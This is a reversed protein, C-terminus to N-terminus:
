ANDVEKRKKLWEIKDLYTEKDPNEKGEPCKDDKCYDPRYESWMSTRGDCKICRGM